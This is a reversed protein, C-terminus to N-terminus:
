QAPASPTPTSKPTAVWSTGDAFDVREVGVVNVAIGQPPFRFSQCNPYRSLDQEYSPMRVNVTIPVTANTGGPDFSGTRDFTDEGVREGKKDIYYFHFRVHTVEKNTVNTFSLCAYHENGRGYANAADIRVPAGNSVIIYRFAYQGFAAIPVAAVIFAALAIWKRM